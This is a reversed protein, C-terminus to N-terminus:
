RKAVSDVHALIVSRVGPRDSKYDMVGEDTKLVKVVKIKMLRTTDPQRVRIVMDELRDRLEGLRLDALPVYEDATDVGPDRRPRM